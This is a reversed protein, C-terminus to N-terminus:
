PTYPQINPTVSFSNGGGNVFSNTYITSSSGSVTSGTVSVVNGGLTIASGLIQSNLITLNRNNAAYISVNGAGTGGILSNTIGINGLSYLSIGYGTGTNGGVTSNTVQMGNASQMEVTTSGSGDVVDITSGDINLQNGAYFATVGTAGADGGELILNTNNIINLDGTAATFFSEEVNLTSNDFQLAGAETTVLFQLFTETNAPNNQTNLFNLAVESPQLGTGLVTFAVYGPADGGVISPFVGSLTVPGQLVFLTTDVDASFAPIV